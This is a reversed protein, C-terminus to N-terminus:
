NIHSDKTRHKRGIQEYFVRETEKFRCRKSFAVDNLM